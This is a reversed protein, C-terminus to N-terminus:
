PSAGHEPATAVPASGAPAPEVVTIELAGIRADNLPGEAGGAGGTYRAFHRLDSMNFGDHLAIVCAQGARAAFVAETSRQEGKSHPMVVPLVQEGEGGCRLSLRKVAATVGTNIPGHPNDYRLVARYRGSRAPTWSRPWDGTVEEITGVCRTPGHLSEIGDDGTDTTSVCQMADRLPLVVRGDVAGRREGDVYVTTAGSANFIWGETTRQLDPAPPSSPAFQPMDLKLPTSAVTEARLEVITEDGDRHIEGAVLLNGSLAHPRRLTIRRDSLRLHIADGDGFLMPVLETPL